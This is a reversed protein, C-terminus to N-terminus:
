PDRFSDFYRKYKAKVSEIFIGTGCAIDLLIDDRKLNLLPLIITNIKDSDQSNKDNDWTCAHKNFFYKRDM